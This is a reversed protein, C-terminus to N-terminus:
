FFPASAILHTIKEFAMEKKASAIHMVSCSFTKQNADFGNSQVTKPLILREAYHEFLHILYKNVESQMNHASFILWETSPITSKM